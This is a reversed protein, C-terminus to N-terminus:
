LQVFEVIQAALEQLLSNKPERALHTKAEAWADEVEWKELKEKLARLSEPSVTQAFLSFPFLFFPFLFVFLWFKMQLRKERSYM